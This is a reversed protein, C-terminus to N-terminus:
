FRSWAFNTFRNMWIYNNIVYNASVSNMDVWGPTTYWSVGEVNKKAGAGSASCIKWWRSPPNVCRGGDIEAGIPRLSFRFLMRFDTLFLWSAIETLKDSLDFNHGWPWFIAFHELKEHNDDNRFVGM